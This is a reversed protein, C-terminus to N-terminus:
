KVEPVAVANQDSLRGRRETSCSTNSIQIPARAGPNCYRAQPNAPRTASSPRLSASTASVPTEVMTEVPEWNPPPKAHQTQRTTACSGSDANGDHAPDIAAFAQATAQPPQLCKLKLVDLPSACGYVRVYMCVYMCTYMWMHIACMCGHTYTYISTYVHICKYTYLQIDIRNHKYISVRIYM